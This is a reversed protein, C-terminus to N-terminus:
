PQISVEQDTIDRAQGEIIVEPTAGGTLVKALLIITDGGGRKQSALIQAAKLGHDITVEDPNEVAKQYGLDRIAELYQENTSVRPLMKGSERQKQVATVVRDEPRTLHEDRHTYITQRTASVDYQSKLWDNIQRANWGAKIKENLLRADAFACLKCWGQKGFGARSIYASRKDSM